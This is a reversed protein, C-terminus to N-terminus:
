FKLLPALGEYAEFIKLFRPSGVAMLSIRFWTGTNPCELAHTPREESVLWLCLIVGWFM